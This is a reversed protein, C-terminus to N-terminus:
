NSLYEILVFTNNKNKQYNWELALQPYKTQLDNYGTCVFNNSCYPCGTNKIARSYISTKWSHGKNCKWWVKKGSNATFNEPKLDGNKEYNWERALNPNINALDTKGKIPYRGSCYPCGKGYSRHKITTEWEHGKNCKWWIKQTSGTFVQTPKLPGNKEDCWQEM